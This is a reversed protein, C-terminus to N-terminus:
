GTLRWIERFLGAAVPAVGVAVATALGQIGDATRAWRASRWGRGLAQGALVAALAGVFLVGFAVIVGTAGLAPLVEAVLGALALLAAVRLVVQLRLDRYLRAVLALMIVASGVLIRAGWTEWAGLPPADRLVLWSAPVLMTVAVLTGIRLLTSGREALADVWPGKVLQRRRGRPSEDRASWATVALQDLALMMEDPVDVVRTPLLRVAVVSGAVIAAWLAAPALDFVLFLFAVSAVIGAAVLSILPVVDSPSALARAVAAGVVAGMAAVVAPLLPNYLGPDATAALGAGALCLPLLRLRMVRLPGVPVVAVVGAVLLTGAVLARGLELGDVAQVAAALVLAVGALMVLWRPTAVGDPGRDIPASGDAKKDAAEGRATTLLLTGHTIGGAELALDTALLTGDVRQLRPADALGCEEAYRQAVDGIEAWTPAVLDLRGAPGDVTLRVTAAVIGEM